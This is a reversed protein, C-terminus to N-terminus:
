FLWFRLKKKKTTKQHVKPFFSILEHLSLTLFTFISWFHPLSILYPSFLHFLQPFSHELHCSGFMCLGTTSSLRHDKFLTVLSSFFFFCHPNHYLLLSSSYVPALSYLTPYTSVHIIKITFRVTFPHCQLNKLLSIFHDFKATSPDNEICNLQLLVTISKLLGM